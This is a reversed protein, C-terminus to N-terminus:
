YSLRASPIIRFMMEHWAKPRAQLDLKLFLPSEPVSYIIFSQSSNIGKEGARSELKELNCNWRYLDEGHHGSGQLPVSLRAVVRDICVTTVGWRLFPNPPYFISWSTLFSPRLVDTRPPRIIKLWIIYYIYIYGPTWDAMVFCLTWTTPNKGDEQSVVDQRAAVDLEELERCPCLHGRDVAGISM